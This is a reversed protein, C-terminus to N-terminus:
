PFIGRRQELVGGAHRGEIQQCRGLMKGEGAGDKRPKIGLRRRGTKGGIGHVRDLQVLLPLEGDTEAPILEGAM